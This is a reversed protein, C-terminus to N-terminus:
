PRELLLVLRARLSEDPWGTVENSGPRELLTIAVRRRAHPSLEDWRGLLDRILEVQQLGFRNVAGVPLPALVILDSDDYVLMTGAALDGIRVAQRTVLTVVFGVMYFMPLGDLLRLVNRILLAGVGPTFGDTTVIRIGAMRKGPTHGAMVVELVPHYLTYLAFAPLLVLLFYGGDPSQAADLTENSWGFVSTGAIWWALAVLIRIHWDIVFAYSRAGAGAIRLHVDVGTVSGITHTDSM